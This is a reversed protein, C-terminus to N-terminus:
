IAAIKGSLRKEKLERDLAEFSRKVRSATEVAPAGLGFESPSWVLSKLAPIFEEDIEYEVSQALGIVRRARKIAASLFFAYFGIQYLTDSVEEWLGEQVIKEWSINAPNGLPFISTPSFSLFSETAPARPVKLYPLTLENFKQVV